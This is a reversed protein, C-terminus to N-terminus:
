FKSRVCAYLSQALTDGLRKGGVVLAAIETQTLLVLDAISKEALLAQVRKPGLGPVASLMAQATGIATKNGKKVTNLAATFSSMAATGAGESDPIFVAPDDTIQALLLRCWRATDLISATALVPMGYRLTLRTTLRKLQTETTRGYSRSESESWAGELVYLVAVGSGRVAMLRARQERYRGDANSAAFDAHSKREAVLLPDGDVTQILFDGVDLNATQFPIELSSLAEGLRSERVDIILQINSV